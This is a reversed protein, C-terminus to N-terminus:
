LAFAAILLILVLLVSEAAVAFFSKVMWDAKNKVTATTEDYAAVRSKMVVEKAEETSDNYHKRLLEPPNPSITFTRPRMAWLSFWVVALFALAVGGGLVRAWIEWWPKQAGIAVQLATMGALLFSSSTFIAACKADIANARDHLEDLAWESQEYLVDIPVIKFNDPSPPGLPATM